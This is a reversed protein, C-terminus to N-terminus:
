GLVVTGVLKANKFLSAVFAACAEVAQFAAPEAVTEDVEVRGAAAIGIRSLNPSIVRCSFLDRKQEFARVFFNEVHGVIEADIWKTAQHQAFVVVIADFIIWLAHESQRLVSDGFQESLVVDVEASLRESGEVFVVAVFFPRSDAEIRAALPQERVDLRRACRKRNRARPIRHQGLQPPDGPILCVPLECNEGTPAPRISDLRSGSISKRQAELVATDGERARARILRRGAGGM